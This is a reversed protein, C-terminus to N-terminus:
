YIVAAGEVGVGGGGDVMTKSTGHVPDLTQLPNTISYIFFSHFFARSVLEM